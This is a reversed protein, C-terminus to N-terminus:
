YNMNLNWTYGEQKDKKFLRLARLVKFIIIGLVAFIAFALGFEIWMVSEGEQELLETMVSFGVYIVVLMLVYRMFLNRAHLIEKRGIDKNFGMNM